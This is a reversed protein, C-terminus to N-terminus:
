VPSIRRPNQKIRLAGDDFCFFFIKFKDRIKLFSGYNAEKNVSQVRSLDFWGLKLKSKWKAKRLSINKKYFLWLSIWKWVDEVSLIYRISIFVFTSQKTFIMAINETLQALFRTVSLLKNGIGFGFNTKGHKYHLGKDISSTSLIHFTKALRSM